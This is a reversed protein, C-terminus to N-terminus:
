NGANNNCALLNGFYGHFYKIWGQDDRGLGAHPNVRVSTVPRSFRARPDGQLERRIERLQRADNRATVM